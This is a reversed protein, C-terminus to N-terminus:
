VSVVTGCDVGITYSTSGSCFAMSICWKERNFNGSKGVAAPLLTYNSVSFEIDPKGASSWPGWPGPPANYVTVTSNITENIFDDFLLKTYQSFPTNFLSGYPRITFATPTTVNHGIPIGVGVRYTGLNVSGPRISLPQTLDDQFNIVIVLSEASLPLSLAVSQLPPSLVALIRTIM